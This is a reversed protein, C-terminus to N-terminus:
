SSVDCHGLCPVTLFYHGTPQLLALAVVQLVTWFLCELSMVVVCLPFDGASGEARVYMRSVLSLAQICVLHFDSTTATSDDSLVAKKETLFLCWEM